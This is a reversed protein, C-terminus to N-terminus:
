LSGKVTYVLNKTTKGLATNQTYTVTINFEFDGKIKIKAPDIVVTLKGQTNPMISNNSVSAVLGDNSKVSVINMPSPTKNVITFVHQTIGNIQGLDCSREEQVRYGFLQADENSIQAFTFVTPMIFMLLILIKKM